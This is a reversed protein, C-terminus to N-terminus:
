PAHASGIPLPRMRVLSVVTRTATCSIIRACDVGVAEGTAVPARSVGVFPPVSALSAVVHHLLTDYREVVLVVTAIFVILPLLCTVVTLLCM